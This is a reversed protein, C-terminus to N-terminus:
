HQIKSVSKEIDRKIKELLNQKKLNKIRYIRCKNKLRLNELELENIKKIYPESQNYLKKRLARVEILFNRARDKEKSVEIIESLLEFVLNCQNQLNKFRENDINTEGQPAIKGNLKEIIEKLNM